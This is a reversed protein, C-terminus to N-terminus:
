ECVPQDCLVGEWGEECICTNPTNECHGNLCGPMSICESCNKGTWGPFCSSVLFNKSM